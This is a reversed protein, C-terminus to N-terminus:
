ARRRGGLEIAWRADTSATLFRDSIGLASRWLSTRFGPTRLITPRLDAFATSFEVGRQIAEASQLSLTRSILQDWEESHMQARSPLVNVVFTPRTEYSLLEVIDSAIVKGVDWGAGAFLEASVRTRRGVDQINALVTLFDLLGPSLKGCQCALEFDSELLSGISISSFIGQRLGGLVAIARWESPLSVDSAIRHQWGQENLVGRVQQTRCDIKAAVLLADHADRWTFTEILTAPLPGRSLLESLFDERCPKPLRSVEALARPLASDDTRQVSALLEKVISLSMSADHEVVRTLSEICDPDGELLAEVMLARGHDSENVLRYGAPSSMARVVHKRDGGAGRLATLALLQHGFDARRIGGADAATERVIVVARRDAEDPSTAIAGIRVADESPGYSSFDTYGNPAAADTGLGVISCAPEESNHITSLTHTTLIEPVQDAAALLLAVLRSPTARMALGTRPPMGILTGFLRNVDQNPVPAIQGREIGELAILPLDSNNRPDHEYEGTWWSPSNFRRLLEVAPLSERTGLLLDAAFNNAVGTTSIPVRHFAIRLEPTDWWGFSPEAPSGIPGNRQMPVVCFQKAAEIHRAHVGASVGVVQFGQM